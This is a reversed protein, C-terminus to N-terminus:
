SHIEHFNTIIRGNSAAKVPLSVHQVERVCSGCGFSVATIYIIVYMVLSVRRLSLIIVVEEEEYVVLCHPCLITENSFSSCWKLKTIKFLDVYNFTPVTLFNFM